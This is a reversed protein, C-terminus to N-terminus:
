QELNEQPKNLETAEVPEVGVSAQQEDPEAAKIAETDADGKPENPEIAKLPKLDPMKELLSFPATKSSFVITSKEELIKQISEVERLFMALEPDEELKEYYRAAEADGKGRIAKARAEAAALLETKKADADSKIAIAEANGEAIIDATKRNREARMRDFVEKSVDESIKLQKIGLSDIEIGYNDRVSQRLDEIMENQITEFRINEPNSNVFEGFSHQGIIRNQTDSIYSRLQNEAERVTEVSTFFKLPDTIKWVAYTRVIIPVAGRTTTEILDGEFVRKRSDFKYVKQIPTPWKFYWGPETIEDELTAKGFTTVVATEIERVQFLILYLGMIVVILIVFITIALNKM